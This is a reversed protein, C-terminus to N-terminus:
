EVPHLLNSYAAQARALSTCYRDLSRQHHQLLRKKSPSAALGKQTTKILQQMQQILARFHEVQQLRLTLLRIFWDFSAESQLQPRPLSHKLLTEWESQLQQLNASWSQGDFVEVPLQTCIGQEIVLARIPLNGQRVLKNLFEFAMELDNVQGLFDRSQQQNDLSTIALFIPHNM